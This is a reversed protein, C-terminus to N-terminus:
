RGLAALVAEGRAFDAEERRGGHHGADGAAAGVVGGSVPADVFRPGAGGAARSVDAGRGAPDLEHGGM